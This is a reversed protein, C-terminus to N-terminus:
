FHNATRIAASDPPLSCYGVITIAVDSASDGADAVVQVDLVSSPTVSNTLVTLAGLATTLNVLAVIEAGGVTSGIRVQPDSAITSARAHIDIIEFNM